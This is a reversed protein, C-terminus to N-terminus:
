REGVLSQEALAKLAAWPVRRNKGIKCYLLEGKDMMQYVKSRSLRLFEAAEPITAFGDDVVSKTAGAAAAKLLASM